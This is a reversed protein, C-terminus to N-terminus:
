ADGKRRQYSAIYAAAQRGLMEEAPAAFGASFSYTLKGHAFPHHDREQVYAVTVGAGDAQTIAFRVADPGDGAPFRECQGRAYGLNCCVAEGAEFPPDAKARCEGAWRDGLPYLESGGRSETPYFYPCSM